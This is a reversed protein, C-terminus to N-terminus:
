GASPGSRARKPKVPARVAAQWAIVAWKRLEDEDDFCADPMRRYSGVSRAGDKTAYVFAALGAEDFRGATERDAKLYIGEPLAWAFVIGDRYIGHGSFMRKLTVRAFPAFLDILFDPDFAGAAM